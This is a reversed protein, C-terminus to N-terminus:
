HRTDNPGVMWFSSNVWSRGEHYQIEQDMGSSGDGNSIDGTLFLAYTISEIPHNVGDKVENLLKVAEFYNV